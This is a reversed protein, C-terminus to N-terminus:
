PHVLMFSFSEPRAFLTVTSTVRGLAHPTVSLKIPSDVPANPLVAYGAQDTGTGAPSLANNVFYALAGGDAGDVNVTVGSAPYWRCDMAQLEITGRSPDLPAGYSDYWSQVTAPSPLLIGTLTAEPVSLPFQLFSLTPYVLPSSIDFYGEFGFVSAAPLVFTVNGQADTTGPPVVPAVCATDGLDCAKVAANALPGGGPYVVFNLTLKTQRAQSIIPGSPPACDWFRGM